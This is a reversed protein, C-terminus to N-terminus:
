IMYDGVVNSMTFNTKTKSSKTIICAKRKNLVRQYSDNKKGENTKCITNHYANLVHMRQPRVPVKLTLSVFCDM